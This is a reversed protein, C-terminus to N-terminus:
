HMRKLQAELKGIRDDQEQVYKILAPVLKSPDIQWVDGQTVAYPACKNLRQAVLGHVVHNGNEKWDYSEVAVCEIVSRASPAPRFNKKLRADSTTNYAIVGGGSNYSISGRVSSADTEFVVLNAHNAAEGHVGLVYQASTVGIVDLTRRNGATRILTNAGSTGTTGIIMSKSSNDAPFAVTDVTTGTRDVTLWATDANGADNLIRFNLQEAAAFFNWYKNNASGDTESVLFGPTGSAFEIGYTTGSSSTSFVHEASWTPEIAQSLAPAGDSRMATAASGNVATLGITGTPNAVTIPAAGDVTDADLGSGTGDNASTWVTGTKGALLSLEEDTASVAGNLNPFTAKTTSKVLRIHDDLTSALDSGLPNTAVLDSIYTGTELGAWVIAPGLLVGAVFAVIRNKLAM